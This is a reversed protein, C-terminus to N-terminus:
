KWHVLASNMNRVVSADELELGVGGGEYVLELTCQGISLIVRIGLDVHVPSGTKGEILLLFYTGFPLSRGGNPVLRAAPM